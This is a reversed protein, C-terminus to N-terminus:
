RLVYSEAKALLEELTFISSQYLHGLSDELVLSGTEKNVQELGEIEALLNYEEDFMYGYSSGSAYTHGLNDSGLFRCPNDTVNECTGLLEKSAVDYIEMVDNSYVVFATSKDDDYFFYRALAAKKLKMEAAAEVAKDYILFDDEHESLEETYDTLDLGYKYNYVTIHNDMYPLVLYNESSILFKKVNQSHCQFQGGFVYDQNTAGFINHFVGDRTFLIFIDKERYVAGGAMGSGISLLGSEAGNGTNILFAQSSSILLLNNAGKASPILIDSGFQDKYTTEWIKQNQRTNYAM